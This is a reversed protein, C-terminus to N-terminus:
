FGEADTIEINTFDATSDNGEEYTPLLRGTTHDYIVTGCDGLKGTVRNKLLRITSINQQAEDQQDRELAIVIDSIQALSGSGRLDKLTVRGGEEHAKGESKRLHCVALIGVGTEEALSRLRTMLQDIVQRESGSSANEQAGMDSVVISIHDLVIFDVGLGNIFFKMKDLLRGGDISGFHDYVFLRDSLKEKAKGLIEKTIGVDALTAQLRADLDKQTEGKRRQINTLTNLPKDMCIGLQHQMTQKVGEELAIVGVRLGHDVILENTIERTLTSKGVGSGATFLQIRGKHVGLIKDSLSKYKISFGPTDASILDDVSMDAISIVGDPRYTRASAIAEGIAKSDGAVLAENADKYCEPLTAIKVKGFPFLTVCQEIAKLGPADNDFMLIVQHYRMLFELNDKIAKSAGSSGNPISVVDILGGFAASVSLADIEGETIVIRKGSDKCSKEGFLLSGIAKTDGLVKFRKDKFRLKQAVLRGQKYYNAVHCKEGNYEGVFYGLKKCSEAPIGRASIERTELDSVMDRIRRHIDTDSKDDFFVTRECAFCYTHDDYVHNADSSGCHECSTKTGPVLHTPATM